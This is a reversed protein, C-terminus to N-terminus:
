SGAPKNKAFFEKFDELQYGNDGAAEQLGGVMREKEVGNEYYVLTPTYEIKYQNWGEEFERLNYQPLDIGAEKALPMLEPTTARCHPCDSAFFYVFFSEKNDIKSKMAAPLIINQYNPDDLIERTAPNMSSVSKGYLENKTGSNLGILLGILIALVAFFSIVPVLKKNKSKM